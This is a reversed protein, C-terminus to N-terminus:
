VRIQCARYMDPNYVLHPLNKKVYSCDHQTENEGELRFRLSKDKAKASVTLDNDLRRRSRLAAGLLM